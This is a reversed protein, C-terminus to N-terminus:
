IKKSTLLDSLEAKSQAPKFPIGKNTLEAMIENKTMEIESLDDNLIKEASSATNEIRTKIKEEKQIREADLKAQWEREQEPTEILIGVGNASRESEQQRMEDRVASEEDPLIPKKLDLYHNLAREKAPTFELCGSSELASPVCDFMGKEVCKEIIVREEDTFQEQLEKLVTEHTM